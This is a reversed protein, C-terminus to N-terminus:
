DQSKALNLPSWDCFVGQLHCLGAWRGEMARPLDEERGRRGERALTVVEERGLM